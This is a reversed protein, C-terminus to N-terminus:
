IFQGGEAPFFVYNCWKLDGTWVNKRVCFVTKIDSFIYALVSIYLLGINALFLPLSIYQDPWVQLLLTFFNIRWTTQIFKVPRCLTWVEIADFVKPFSSCLCCALSLKMPFRQIPPIGLLTWGAWSTSGHVHVVCVSTINLCNSTGMYDMIFCMCM